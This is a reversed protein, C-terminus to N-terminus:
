WTIRGETRIPKIFVVEEKTKQLRKLNEKEKQRFKRSSAKRASKSEKKWYNYPEKRKTRAMLGEM